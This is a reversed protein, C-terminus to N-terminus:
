KQVPLEDARQLVWNSLNDYTEKASEQFIRTFKKSTYGDCLLISAFKEYQKDDRKDAFFQQFDQHRNNSFAAVLVNGKTKTILDMMVEQESKRNPHLGKGGYTSESILTHVKGYQSDPLVPPELYLTERSRGLDGTFWINGHLKDKIM